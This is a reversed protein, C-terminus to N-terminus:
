RRDGGRDGPRAEVHAKAAGRAGALVATGQPSSTRDLLARAVGYAQRNLRRGIPPPPPDLGEPNARAIPSPDVGEGSPHPPPTSVYSGSDRRCCTPLCHPM